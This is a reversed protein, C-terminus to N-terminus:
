NSLKRIEQGNDQKGNRLCMVFQKGQFLVQTSSFDKGHKGKEIKENTANIQIIQKLPILM